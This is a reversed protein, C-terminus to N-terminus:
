IKSAVPFSDNSIGQNAPETEQEFARRTDEDLFYYTRGDQELRSSALSKPFRIKAVPDVALEDKHQERLADDQRVVALYVKVFAIM